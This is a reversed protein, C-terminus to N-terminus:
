DEERMSLDAGRTVEEAVRSRIACEVDVSVGKHDCVADYSTTERPHPMQWFV